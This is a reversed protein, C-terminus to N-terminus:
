KKLVGTKELGMTVAVAAAGKILDAPIFPLVCVAVSSEFSNGTLRSYWLTGMAYCIVTAALIGASLSLISRKKFLKVSFAIVLVMFPYAWIFGGTPGILKGIGGEFGSFVPLGVTGLAIYVLTATVRTRRLCFPAASFYRL